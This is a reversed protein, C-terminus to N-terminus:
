GEVAPPTCEYIEGQCRAPISAKVMVQISPMNPKRNTFLHTSQKKIVRSRFPRNPECGFGSWRQKRCPLQQLQCGDSICNGASSTHFFDYHQYSLDYMLIKPSTAENSGKSPRLCKRNPWPWQDSISFPIHHTSVPINVVHVYLELTM